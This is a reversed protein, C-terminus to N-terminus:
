NNENNLTQKFNFGETLGGVVAGGLAGIAQGFSQDASQRFSAAQSQFQQQLAAMRDLQQQERKERARFMFEQGRMKSAQVRSGEQLQMM